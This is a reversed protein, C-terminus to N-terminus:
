SERTVIQQLVRIPSTCLMCLIYIDKLYKTETIYGHVIKYLGNRHVMNITVWHITKYGLTGYTDCHVVIRISVYRYTGTYTDCHVPIRIAIYRYTEFCYTGICIPIYQYM